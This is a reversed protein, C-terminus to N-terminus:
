DALEGRLVTVAQGGLHVRDGDLRVRLVGGRASIQRAKFACKGLKSSWFTALYCHASGTVPDEDIGIWPAFYRSVFDYEALDSRSTVIVCRGPMSRLLAFDPKLKRVTEESDVEILYRGQNVAVYEPKVGLAKLLEAPANGVDLHKAPFDLEIWDGDKTATLLDSLTHFRIEEDSSVIGNEYLIHASALTAHGCLKVEVSPTFWRLNYGDGQQLVFATESLNMERAVNLMCAEDRPSSILCVGAPNGAFPRNTFADVQFIPTSM